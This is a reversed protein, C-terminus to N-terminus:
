TDITMCMLTTERNPQRSYGGEVQNNNKAIFSRVMAIRRPQAKASEPVFRTRFIPSVGFVSRAGPDCLGGSTPM